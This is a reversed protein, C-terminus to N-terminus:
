NLNKLFDKILFSLFYPFTYFFNNFGINNKSLKIGYQIEPYKDSKILFNLTKSTGRGAKVEIPVINNRSRLLFDQELTGKANKYYYLELGSKVFAEAVMNEYIAGKYVGLNKNSRLDNQSEEDLQSILLGTDKMYIKYNSANYNGKLPLELNNIEYCINIMGADDLWEIVGSYERLRANKNIKSLQFRKNVKALQVPIHNFVNTIRNKDLGSAYKKMDEKYDNVIQKQNNLSGEFTKNSIFSRLIEPMGGLVTFEIFLNIFIEFELDSFKQLSLMKSLFYQKINEDYGKAWLFEEFDLSSMEYDTKYGTSVSDIRKYNIGLLSGSCIVDYRQDLNFFKLSTSIEIYDQIEDFIILTKENSAFKKNPDILSINKIINEVSYGDSTIGKYIPEEIFNIYIFNKYNKKAFNLISETKGVQRPGKIILPKRDKKQKWNILYDDIKRKLYM